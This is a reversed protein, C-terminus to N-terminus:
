YDALLRHSIDLDAAAKNSDQVWTPVAPAAAASTSVSVTAACAAIAGACVGALVRPLAGSPSRTVSPKPM